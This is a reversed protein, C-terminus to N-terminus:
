DIEVHMNQDGAAATLRFCQQATPTLAVDFFFFSFLFVLVFWQRFPLTLLNAELSSGISSVREALVGGRRSAMANYASFKCAREGAAGVVGGPLPAFPDHREDDGRALRGSGSSKTTKKRRQLASSAFRVGGSGM